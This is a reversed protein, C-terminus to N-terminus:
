LFLGADAHPKKRTKKSTSYSVKSACIFTTFFIKCPLFERIEQLFHFFGLIPGMKQSNTKKFIFAPNNSVLTETM